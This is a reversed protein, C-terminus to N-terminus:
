DYYDERRKTFFRLIKAIFILGVCSLFGYVAYFEPSKEWLFEVHRHIFFDLILLVGLSVFFFLLLRKVNKPDDFIKLERKM